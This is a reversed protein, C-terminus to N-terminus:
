ALGRYITAVTTNINTGSERFSGIPLDSWQPRLDDLEGHDHRATIPLIATLRGGPKLYDLAHRVHKAYHRGYFPPNMVVQDFDGTPATELFNAMMVSHGKRRCESARSQDVEIGYSDAG